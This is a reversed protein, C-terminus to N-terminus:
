GAGVTGSMSASEAIQVRELKMVSSLLEHLNESSSSTLSHTYIMINCKHTLFTYLQAFGSLIQTTSNKFPEETIGATCICLKSLMEAASSIICM